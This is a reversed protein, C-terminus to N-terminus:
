AENALKHTLIELENVVWIAAKSFMLEDLTQAKHIGREIAKYKVQEHIVKRAYNDKLAACAERFSLMSEADLEKGNIMLGNPTFHIMEGIPFANLRGILATILATKDEISLDAKNLQAILRKTVPSTM